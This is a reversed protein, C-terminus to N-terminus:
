WPAQAQNMVDNVVAVMQDQQEMLQVIKSYAHLVTSHDRGGFRRGIEMLSSSTLERCIYMAVQRPLVLTRNRKPGLMEEISVGFHRAVVEVIRDLTVQYNGEGSSYDKLLDAVVEMTVQVDNISAYALVKTLAGELVRVNWTIRAIHEFVDLPIELNTHASKKQLIAIRETVDPRKIDVITGSEFRSRLRENLVQLGRPPQDSSMVIQRNTEYLTNFTHFFEEESREKAAIFQVDDVLWLDVSRYKRRFEDTKKDRIATVVHNVFTEASVYVVRRDPQNALVHHGIAQMLHTKGLGVGGWVFLPNPGVGQAGGRAANLALAYAFRNSNGEVFSEFTYRPNLPTSRFSDDEHPRAKPLAEVSDPPAHNDSVVLDIEVGDGAVRWVSERMAEMHREALWDRAFQNPVGLRLRGDVFDLPEISKLIGDFAAPSTKGAISHLAARWLISATDTTEPM